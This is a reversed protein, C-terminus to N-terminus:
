AAGLGGLIIPSFLMVTTWIGRTRWLVDGSHENELAQLIPSDPRALRFAAVGAWGMALLFGVRGLSSAMEDDGLAETYAVMLMTPLMTITLLSMTRRVSTMSSEPWEFHSDGLGDHQAVQRLIEIILWVFATEQLAIGFAHMTNEGESISDIKMGLFYISIPFPLAVFLTLFLAKVTPIMDICNSRAAIEGLVHIRHRARRRVVMLTMLTLLSLSWSLRCQSLDQALIRGARNWTKLDFFAATSNLFARPQTGLIRTSRVWLVHEALWHLEEEIKALLRKEQGDLEVLQDLQVGGNEILDGLRQLRAALIVQVQEQLEAITISEPLSKLNAIVSSAANALDILPKREAEWELLKLNLTSIESQRAQIRLRLDHRDPLTSRQKRLLVGIAPSFEAAESRVKLSAFAETRKSLEDELLDLEQQSEHRSTVMLANEDALERNREAETRVSEHSLLLAKRAALKEEDAQRRRADAAQQQWYQIIREAERSDREALDRQLTWQRATGEYTRAEQELLAIERRQRLQRSQLRILKIESLQPLEGEPAPVLLLQGTEELQQTAQNRLEALQPRRATRRDVEATTEQVKQSITAAASEAEKLRATLADLNLGQGANAPVADELPTGLRQQFETVRQPAGELEKVLLATRAAAQEAAQLNEIAKLFQQDLLARTADDLDNDQAAAQRQATLDEVSPPSVAAAPSPLGSDDAVTDSPGKADQGSLSQSCVLIFPIMVFFPVTRRIRNTDEM